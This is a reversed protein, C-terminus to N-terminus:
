LNVVSHHSLSRRLDRLSFQPASSAAFDGARIDCALRAACEELRETARELDQDRSLAPRATQLIRAMQHLAMSRRARDRARRLPATLGRAACPNWLPELPHPQSTIGLSASWDLWPFPLAHAHTAVAVWPVRLADAVVAGHMAETLLVETRGIGDLLREVPWRPDLYGIGLEICVSQWARDGSHGDQPMFAFACHKRPPPQVFRHVLTAGDAIASAAPLGLARATLPGRVCYVRDCPGPRFRSDSSGAGAGFVLRQPGNGAPDEEPLTGVGVLLTAPNDDLLGPLLRPLLWRSLSSGLSQADNEPADHYLKM